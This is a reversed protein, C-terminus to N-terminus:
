LDLSRQWKIVNLNSKGNVVDDGLSGIDPLHMAVNKDM